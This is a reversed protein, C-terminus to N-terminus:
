IDIFSDPLTRLQRMFYRDEIAYVMAEIYDMDQGLSAQLEVFVDKHQKYWYAGLTGVAALTAIPVLAFPGWTVFITDALLTFGLISVLGAPITFVVILLVISVLLSVSLIGGSQTNRITQRKRLAPTGSIIAKAFQRHIKSRSLNKRSQDYKRAFSQYRIFTRQDSLINEATHIASSERGYEETTPLVTHWETAKRRISEITDAYSHSPNIGLITFPETAPFHIPSRPPILERSYFRITLSNHDLVLLPRGLIFAKKSRRRTQPLMKM